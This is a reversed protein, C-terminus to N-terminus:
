FGVFLSNNCLITFSLALSVTSATFSATLECGIPAAAVAAIPVPRAAIANERTPM